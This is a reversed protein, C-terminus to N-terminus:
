TGATFVVLAFEQSLYQLVEMIKPRLTVKIKFRDAEKKHNSRVVFSHEMKLEPDAYYNPDIDCVASLMTEDMDLVLCKTIEESAVPVHKAKKAIEEAKPQTLSSLYALTRVLTEDVLDGFEVTEEV